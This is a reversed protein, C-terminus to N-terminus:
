PPMRHWRYRSGTEAGCPTGPCDAARAPPLPAPPWAASIRRVASSAGSTALLPRRTSANVRRADGVVKGAARAMCRARHLRGGHRFLLSSGRGNNAGGTLLRLVLGLYRGTGWGLRRGGGGHAAHRHRLPAARATGFFLDAVGRERLPREDRQTVGVTLDRAHRHRRRVVRHDAAPGEHQLAPATPGIALGGPQSLGLVGQLFQQAQAQGLRLQLASAVGAAQLDADLVAIRRGALAITIAQQVRSPHRPLVQDAGGGAHEAALLWQRDRPLHPRCGGGGRRGRAARVRQQKQLARGSQEGLFEIKRGLPEDDGAGEAQGLRLDHSGDVGIEGCEAAHHGRAMRVHHVHGPHVHVLRARQEAGLGIQVVRAVADDAATFTPRQGAHRRRGEGARDDIRRPRRQQDAEVQM